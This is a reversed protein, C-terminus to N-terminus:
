NLVPPVNHIQNLHARVRQHTKFMSMAHHMNQADSTVKEMISAHARLPLTEGAQKSAKQGTKLRWGEARLGM